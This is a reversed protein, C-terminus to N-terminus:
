LAERGDVVAAFYVRRFMRARKPSNRLLDAMGLAIKAADLLNLIAARRYGAAQAKFAARVKAPTKQDKAVVDLRTILVEIPKM